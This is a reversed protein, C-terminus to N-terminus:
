DAQGAWVSGCPAWTEPDVGDLSLRDLAFVWGPVETPHAAALTLSSALRGTIWARWSNDGTWDVSASDAPPDAAWSLLGDCGHDCTFPVGQPSAGALATALQTAAENLAAKDAFYAVLHDPRLLGYVDRGAKVALMGTVPQLLKLTAHLADPLAEIGSSIYLKLAPAHLGGGRHRRRPRWYHWAPELTHSLARPPSDAVRLFAGVGADGALRQRWEPTAPRSNFQYLRHQLAGGTLGLAEGHRVAAHSLATHRSAARPPAGDFWARHAAPGSVFRGEHELELVGDLVLRAIARTGGGEAADLRRPLSLSHFLAATETTLARAGGAASGRPLLVATADPADALLQFRSAVAAPLERPAVVRFDPAARFM